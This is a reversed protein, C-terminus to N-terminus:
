QYVKDPDAQAHGQRAASTSGAGYADNRAVMGARTGNAKEIKIGTSDILPHWRNSLTDLRMPAAPLSPM